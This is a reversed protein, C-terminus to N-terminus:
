EFGDFVKKLEVYAAHYKKIRDIDKDTLEPLRTLDMNDRLDAIKVSVAIPDTKILNIYDTYDIGPRHTLLEIANIVEYSFGEHRLGQVTWEPCDELLDHLYAVCKATASQQKRAVRQLHYFYPKGAKDLKGEFARSAILFAKGTM